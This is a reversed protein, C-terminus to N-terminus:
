LQSFATPGFSFSPMEVNNVKASGMSDIVKQTEVSRDAGHKFGGAQGGGSVVSDAIVAELKALQTASQELVSQLGKIMTILQAHTPSDNMASKNSALVANLMLSNM